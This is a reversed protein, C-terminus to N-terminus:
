TKYASILKKEGDLVLDCTGGTKGNRRKMTKVQVFSEGNSPYIYNNEEKDVFTSNHLFLVTNADQELDGAERLMSLNMQQIDKVEGTRNLQAGLIVPLKLPVAIEHLITASIEKVVEYGTKKTKLPIKQIYDVLVGGINMKKSLKKIAIALDKAELSKEFVMLRNSKMLDKLYNKASEIIEDDNNEQHIYYILKKYSCNYGRKESFEFEHNILRLLLKMVVNSRPEEYTFFLFTKDKYLQSLNILMNLMFTTKGHSPRAAILTIASSPISFIENLSDIGTELDDEINKIDTIFDDFHYNEISENIQDTKIKSIEKQLIEKANNLNGEQLLKQAIFTSQQLNKRENEKDRDFRIKEEAKQLSEKSIQLVGQSYQLSYDLFWGKTLQNPIKSATKVIEKAYQSAQLSTAKTFDLNLSDIIQQHLFKHLPISKDLYNLFATKGKTTLIDAPDSNDPLQCISLSLDGYQDKELLKDIIEKTGEKGAKDSDLCVTIAKSKQNFLQSIQEKSAKSGGISQVNKIDNSELVLADIQGEVLIIPYENNKQLNFLQKSKTYNKSYRYKDKSSDIKRFIFGDILNNKNHSALSLSYEEKIYFEQNFRKILEEGIKNDNLFKQTDKIGPFHGFDSKILFDNEFGREKLYQLTQEGKKTFLQNKFFGNIQLYFDTKEIHNQIETENISPLEIGVINAINQVTHYFNSNDREAIYSILNRSPSSTYCKIIQPRNQYVYVKGKGKGVRGDPRLTNQSIWYNESNSLKFNFEPLLQDIYHYSKKLLNEEIFENIM